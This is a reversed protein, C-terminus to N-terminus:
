LFLLLEISSIAVNNILMKQGVEQSTTDDSFSGNESFLDSKIYVLGSETQIFDSRTSFLQIM